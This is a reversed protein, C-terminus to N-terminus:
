PRAPRHRDAPRPPQCRPAKSKLPPYYEVGTVLGAASDVTYNIGAGLDMYYHVALHLDQRKEYKKEDLKLDALKPPQKPYVFFSIVTDPAVRWGYDCPRRSYSVSVREGATVYVSGAESEPRGLLREVDARTSRLPEIGRWGRGPPQPALALLAFVATSLLLNM